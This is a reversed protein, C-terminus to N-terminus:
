KLVTKWKASTVRCDLSVVLICGVGFDSFILEKCIPIFSGELVATM